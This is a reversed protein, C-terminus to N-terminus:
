SVHTIKVGASELVKKADFNSWGDKFYLSKIGSFAILKACVPCPFVTVYLSAGKVSLGEKAAQAVISQEAHITSALDPREGTNFLDRVEGVQYPTYDSPLDKNNARLIIEKDKVLVAGIQRWWDGSKESRTLAERMMKIDFEDKSDPIDELKEANLVRARDWRLFVSHWEINKEDFYKKAFNRSIEDDVLVIKENKLEQANNESFIYINEFGLKGLLNKVEPADIAAIDPKFESLKELFKNELIYIDSVEGQVKKFFDM